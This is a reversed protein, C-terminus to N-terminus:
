IKYKTLNDRAIVGNMNIYEITIEKANEKFIPKFHDKMGATKTVTVTHVGKKQRVGFWIKLLPPSPLVRLQSLSNSPFPFTVNKLTPQLKSM